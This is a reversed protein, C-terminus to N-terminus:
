LREGQRYRGRLEYGLVYRPGLTHWIFSNVAYIAKEKARVRRARRALAASAFPNGYAQWALPSNRYIVRLEAPIQEGNTFYDHSYRWRIAEEYGNLMLRESYDTFLPAIDLRDSLHYRTMHNSIMDGEGIRYGSFHYFYLPSGNCMWRGNERSLRRSHLNWYAVNYGTDKEIFYNDFLGPLLDIFRQDVFYGNRHDIVCKNYLKRQWWSLFERVTPTDRIGIFGLNYTGSKLVFADDPSLGDEPYDKDLHPTLVIDFQDLRDFLGGIPNTVLIDPDIYLLKGLGRGTLLHELFYPKAATSLETVNYKFCFSPLDPIDLEELGVVEFREEAPRVLGEFDDVILVYCEGDPHVARFSEALTRAFA